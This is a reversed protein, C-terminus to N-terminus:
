IITMVITCGFPLLHNVIPFHTESTHVVVVLLPIMDLVMATMVVMMVEMQLDVLLLLKVLGLRPLCRVIAEVMYRMSMVRTINLLNRADSLRPPEVDL